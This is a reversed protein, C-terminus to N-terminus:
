LSAHDSVEELCYDPVNAAVVNLEQAAGLDFNDVGVGYRVICRVRPLAQLVKRTIPAWQVLLVDASQCRHIIEEETRCIPSAEQLCFGASEIIERQGQISPFGHDTVIVIGKSREM